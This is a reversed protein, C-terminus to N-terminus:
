SGPVWIVNRLVYEYSYYFVWTCPNARIIVGLATPGDSKKEKMNWHPLLRHFGKKRLNTTVPKGTITSDTISVTTSNQGNAFFTSCMIFVM